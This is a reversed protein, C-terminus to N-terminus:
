VYLNEKINCEKLQTCIAEDTKGYDGLRSSTNGTCINSLESLKFKKKMEKLIIAFTFAAVRFQKGFDIQMRGASVGIINSKKEKEPM